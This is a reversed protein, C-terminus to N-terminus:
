ELLSEVKAKIMLLGFAHRKKAQKLNPARFLFENIKKTTTSLVFFFFKKNEQNCHTSHLLKITLSEM